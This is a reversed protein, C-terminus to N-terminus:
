LADMLSRLTVLDRSVGGPSKLTRLSAEQALPIVEEVSKVAGKALGAVVAGLLTDGAGNVSVIEGDALVAASPFLRM